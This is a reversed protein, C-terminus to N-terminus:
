LTPGAIAAPFATNSLGAPTVGSDARANVRNSNSHPRGSDAIAQRVPGPPSSPAAIQPSRRTRFIEKVPLSATPRFITAAAPTFRTVISSPEFQGATTKASASRGAVAERRALCAVAFAPCTHM